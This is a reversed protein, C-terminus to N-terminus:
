ATTYPDLDQSNKKRCPLSEKLNKGFLSYRCADYCVIVCLLLLICGMAFIICNIIIHADGEIVDSFEEDKERSYVTM